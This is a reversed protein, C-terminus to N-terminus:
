SDDVDIVEYTNKDKLTPAPFSISEINLVKTGTQEQARAKIIGMVINHAMKVGHPVDGSPMWGTKALRIKQMKQDAPLGEWEFPIQSEDVNGNEDFGLKHFDMVTQLIAINDEFLKNEAAKIAESSYAKSLSEIESRQENLLALQTKVDKKTM